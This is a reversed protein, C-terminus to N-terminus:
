LKGMINLFLFKVRRILVDILYFLYYWTAEIVSLKLNSRYIKWVAIQNKYVMSSRSGSVKRYHMLPKQLCFAKYGSKMILLWWLTDEAFNNNVTILIDEPICDKKLMVSSNAIGRRRLYQRYSNIKWGHFVAKSVNGDEQVLRYSTFSFKIKKSIMFLIQDEIKTATWIDDSDIFAIFNGHSSKIGLARAQAPGQDDPNDILKIRSDISIFKDIIEKTQDTSRGDVILLEWNKYTQSLVSSVSKYLFRESNYTPLIVSVKNEKECFSSYSKMCILKKQYCTYNVRFWLIGM